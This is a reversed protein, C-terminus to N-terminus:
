ALSNKYREVWNVDEDKHGPHHLQLYIVSMGVFNASNVREITTYVMIAKFQSIFKRHYSEENIINHYSTLSSLPDTSYEQPAHRRLYLIADQSASWMTPARHATSLMVRILMLKCSSRLTAPEGHRPRRM